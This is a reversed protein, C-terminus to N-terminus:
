RVIVEVRRNLPESVGPPTPVLPRNEGHSSLRMMDGAISADELIKQINQARQLSLQLNYEPSGSRDSHGVISIDKSNRAIITDILQRLTERSAELPETSNTEFYLIFTAPQPPEAALAEGFVSAIRNQDFRDIEPLKRPNSVVAAEGAQTLLRIGAQTAVEVQGVQGDPDPVLVVTTRPGACGWTLAMIIMWGLIYRTARM